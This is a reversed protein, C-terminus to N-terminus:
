QSSLDLRINNIKQEIKKMFSHFLSIQTKNVKIFEIKKVDETPLLITSKGNKFIHYSSTSVVYEYSEPVENQSEFFYNGCDSKNKLTYDIQFFTTLLIFTFFLLPIFIKFSKILISPIIWYSTAIIMTILTISIINISTQFLMFYIFNATLLAVSLAEAYRIKFPKYKTEDHNVSVSKWIAKTLLILLSMILILPVIDAFASVGLNWYDEIKYLMSININLMYSYIIARIFGGTVFIVPFYKYTTYFFNNTFLDIFDRQKQLIKNELKKNKESLYNIEKKSIISPISIIDNLVYALEPYNNKTVESPNKEWKLYAFKIISLLQTQAQIGSNYKSLDKSILINYFYQKRLENYERLLRENNKEM